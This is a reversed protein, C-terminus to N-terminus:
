RLRRIVCRRCVSQLFRSGLFSLNLSFSYTIFPSINRVERFFNKYFNSKREDVESTVFHANLQDALNNGEQVLLQSLEATQPGGSDTVAVVQVTCDSVCCHNQPSKTYQFQPVPSQPGVRCSM